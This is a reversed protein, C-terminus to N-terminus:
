ANFTYYEDCKSCFSSVSLNEGYNKIWHERQSAWIAIGKKEKLNGRSESALSDQKCFPITGDAKIVLDRRLHWCFSRKLPTMDSVRREPLQGSFSNYKQLLYQINLTDALECLEHLDKENDIMKLTQLFVQKKQPESLYNVLRQVRGKFDDFTDTEYLDTFSQSGNCELILVIKHGAKLSLADKLLNIDPISTTIFLNKLKEEQLVQDTIEKFNPHLLPEGPGAFEVSFETELNSFMETLSDWNKMSLMIDSNSSIAPSYKFKRYVKNTLELQFFSPNNFLLAPNEKLSGEISDILDQNNALSTTKLLDRTELMSRFSLCSYDLRLLRLDPLLFHSEVAFKNINKLIFDYLSVKQEDLQTLDVLEELVEIASRHVITPVIGPPINEGHTLEAAYQTHIEVLDNFLKSNFLPTLNSFLILHEIEPNEEFIKSIESVNAKGIETTNEIDKCLLYSEESYFIRANLDTFCKKQLNILEEFLLNDFENISDLYNTPLSCFIASKELM